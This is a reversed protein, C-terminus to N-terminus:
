VGNEFVKSRASKRLFTLAGVSKFLFLGASTRSLVCGFIILLEEDVEPSSPEKESGRAAYVLLELTVSLTNEVM